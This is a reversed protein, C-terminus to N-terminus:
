QNARKRFVEYMLLGGAVSANLSQVHGVMPISIMGDCNKKVLASIGKGENGIVLGIPGSADLTTYSEGNMDAGFIWLGAEKLEEIARTLNTVRAVPVHEIAGTSTKAVTGTLLASHHKPIILGHCGSADATRLLSGLNHPDLIGDLIMVFPPTNSQKAHELIDEITKYEFAAVSLVFGQHVGENTLDQLKKKPAVQIPINKAKALKVITDKDRGSLGEQIFLKNFATQEQLASLVAHKGYIFDVM